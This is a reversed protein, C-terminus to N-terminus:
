DGMAMQVGPKHLVRFKFPQLSLYWHTIRSNTDKMRQLLQLPVYDSCLAFFGGLCWDVAGKQHHQILVGERSLNRCIYRVLRDTGQVQQSLM